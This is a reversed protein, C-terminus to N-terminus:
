VEAVHNTLQTLVSYAMQTCRRKEDPVYSCYYTVIGVAEEIRQIEFSWLIQAVSIVWSLKSVHHVSFISRGCITRLGGDPLYPTYVSLWVCVHVCLIFLLSLIKFVILFFVYCKDSGTLVQNNNLGNSKLSLLPLSKTKRTLAM